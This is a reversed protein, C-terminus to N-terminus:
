FLQSCHTFLFMTTTAIIIGALQAFAEDVQNLIFTTGAQMDSIKNSLSGSLHNQFYNHSHKKLYSFMSVIIDKRINPFATLRLWDAIKFNIAGLIFLLIYATAPIKVLQLFQSGNGDTTITNIILKLLYPALSTQIGWFLGTTFLAIM